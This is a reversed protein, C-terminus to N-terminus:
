DTNWRADPDGEYADDIMDAWTNDPPFSDNPESERELINGEKDIVETVSIHENSYFVKAKGNEFKEVRYYSFGTLVKGESNIFSCEKFLRSGDLCIGVLGESYTDTLVYYDSPIVFPMIEYGWIDVLKTKDGSVVALYNNARGNYSFYIRDIDQYDVNEVSFGWNDMSHLGDKEEYELYIIDHDNVSAYCYKIRREEDYAEGYKIDECSDICVKFGKEGIFLLQKLNDKTVIGINSAVIEISDYESNLIRIGGRNLLGKKTLTKGDKTVEEEIIFFKESSLVSKPAINSIINCVSNGELIATYDIGNKKMLLYVGITDWATAIPSLRTAKGVPLISLKDYECPICCYLYKNILGYKGDTSCIYFGREVESVFEAKVFPKGEIMPYGQMNIVCSQEKVYVRAYGNRFAEVRDYTAHTIAYGKENIFGYRLLPKNIGDFMEEGVKVSYVRINDFSEEWKKIKEERNRDRWHIDPYDRFKKQPYITIDKFEKKNTDYLYANGDTDYMLEGIKKQTYIALTCFINM